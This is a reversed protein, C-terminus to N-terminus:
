IAEIDIAGGECSSFFATLYEEAEELNNPPQKKTTKGAPFRDSTRLKGTCPDKMNMGCITFGHDRSCTFKDVIARTAVRTKQHDKDSTLTSTGLKLDIFSGNEKGFLLNEVTINWMECNEENENDDYYMPLFQRMKSLSTQEGHEDFIKRYNIVEELKTVKTVRDGM